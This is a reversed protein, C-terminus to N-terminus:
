YLLNTNFFNAFDVACWRKTGMFLHGFLKTELHSSVEWMLLTLVWPILSAGM